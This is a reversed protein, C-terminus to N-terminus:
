SRGWRSRFWAFLALCVGSCGLLALGVTGKVIAAGVLFIVALLLLVWEIM